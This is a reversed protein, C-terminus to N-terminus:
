KEQEKKEAAKVAKSLQDACSTGRFGCTIGKCKQEIQDPTLGEVFRSLAKLNGDCGNEFRVNKVIGDEIELDITRSCTGSTKYTHKM